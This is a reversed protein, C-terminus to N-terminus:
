ECHKRILGNISPLNPNYTLVLPFIKKSDRIKPKLLEDRPIEAALFAIELVNSGGSSFEFNSKPIM